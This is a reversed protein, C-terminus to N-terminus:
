KWYIYGDIFMDVDKAMLPTSTSSTKEKEKQPKTMIKVSNVNFLYKLNTISFFYSLVNGTGGSVLIQVPVEEYGGLSKARGTFFNTEASVNSSSAAKRLEDSLLFYREKEVFVGDLMHSSEKIQKSTGSILLTDSYEKEIEGQIDKVEEMNASFDNLAPLYFVFVFVFIVALFVINMIILKNKSWNGM